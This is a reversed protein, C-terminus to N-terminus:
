RAPARDGAAVHDVVVARVEPSDLVRNHGLESTVLLRSGPHAAHLRHAYAHPVQRDGADHVFLTPVDEPAPRRVLDFRTRPDPEGPFLGRAIRRALPERLRVPLGTAAVFGEVLQDFSPSTAVAALSGGVLGERLAIGAALAGFSHGVLGTVGAPHEALRALIELHDLITTRRGTSDGHAVGDFARVHHGAAELDAALAAFRSARSQWGHVLLVAPAAPDGWAYTAVEQGRVELTGRRARDHVARDAPLVPTPPGVRRFAAFSAEVALPPAAAGLAAFGARAAPHVRPM